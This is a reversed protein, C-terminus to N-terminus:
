MLSTRHLPNRKTAKSGPAAFSALWSMKRHLPRSLGAYCFDDTGRTVIPIPITMERQVEGLEWEWSLEPKPFFHM